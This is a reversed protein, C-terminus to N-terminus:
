KCMDATSCRKKNKNKKFIKFVFLITLYYKANGHGHIGFSTKKEQNMMKFPKKSFKAQTNMAFTHPFKKLPLFGLHGGFTLNSYLTWTKLDIIELLERGIKIFKSLSM